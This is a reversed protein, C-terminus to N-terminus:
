TPVEPTRACTGAYCFSTYPGAFYNLYLTDPLAADVPEAVATHEMDLAGVLSCNSDYVFVSFGERELQSMFLPFTLLM